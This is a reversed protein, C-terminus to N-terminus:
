EFPLHYTIGYRRFLEPLEDGRMLEELTADLKEKLDRDEARVVMGLNLRLEPLMEFGEVFKADYQDEGALLAWATSPEWLFGADVEGDALGRLADEAHRYHAVDFGNEVLWRDAPSVMQVGVKKGRLDELTRTTTDDGRVVLVFGTGFHPRTVVLGHSAPDHKFKTGSPVGLFCDCKNATISHSYAYSMGGRRVTTVWYFTARVGWKKAILHAVEIDVGPM